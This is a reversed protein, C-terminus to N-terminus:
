PHARKENLRFVFSDDNLRDQFDISFLRYAKKFIM